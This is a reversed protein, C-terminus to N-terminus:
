NKTQIRATIMRSVILIGTLIQIDLDDVGRCAIRNDLSIDVAIGDLDGDPIGFVAVQNAFIVGTVFHVGNRRFANDNDRSRNVTVMQPTFYLSQGVTDLVFVSGTPFALVVIGNLPTLCGTFCMSINQRKRSQGDALGKHYPTGSVVASSIFLHGIGHCHGDIRDIRILSDGGFVTNQGKCQTGHGAVINLKVDLIQRFM